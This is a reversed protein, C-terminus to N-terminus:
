AQVSEKEKFHSCTYCDGDSVEVGLHKCNFRYVTQTKGGCCPQETSGTIDGVFECSRVPRHRKAGSSVARDIIAVRVEQDGAHCAACEEATVPVKWSSCLVGSGRGQCDDARALEQMRRIKEYLKAGGVISRRIV